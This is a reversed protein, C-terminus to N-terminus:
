VQSRKLPEHASMTDELEEPVNEDDWENHFDSEKRDKESAPKARRPVVSSATPRTSPPALAVSLMDSHFDDHANDEYMDRRTTASSALHAPTRKTRAAATKSLSSSKSASKPQRGQEENWLQQIREPSSVTQAVLFRERTVRHQDGSVEYDTLERGIDPLTMNILREESMPRGDAFLSGGRTKDLTDKIDVSEGFPIADPNSPTQCTMNVEQPLDPMQLRYAFMARTWINAVQLAMAARYKDQEKVLYRIEDHVSIMYRADINFRKTLYEMSVLLMHLYDVGSSQVVWNIRSPMFGEGARSKGEAPLFSKTLAATLGCGLTPTRPRDNQAIEELKNFVFSETGGHWFKRGFANSRDVLGKTAAYLEKALTQAQDMSLTPNFKLLLQMAHKIGAGYIRSYNFVKAADRSIGLISASKSHLDTGASKTGELTMWGIATAGHMGFQADGMVSCIWLEESDVDAGVIAYGPPARIMSKLESGVRNKKANSATLWTREVARRTITGMPIVQPLILGQIDQDKGDDHRPAARKADGNWVVMQNVIRERSSIWYSCSANLALADKAAPYESTLIGDEFASLFPKSLPNGVNKEEGDPHPLKFHAAIATDELLDSDAPDDFDLPRLTNDSDLLAAVDSAPVRYLWGHQKSFAIPYGRWRLRLLLPVARKRVSIDLGGGPIDLDWYWRPWSLSSGDAQATSSTTATVPKTERGIHGGTPQWDLQRLWLDEEPSSSTSSAAALAQAQLHSHLEASDPETVAMQLAKSFESSLLGDAVRKAAGRGFLKLCRGSGVSPLTFFRVKDLKTLLEDPGSFTKRDVPMERTEPKFKSKSDVLFMWGHKQSFAVPHGRWKTKLLIPALQSEAIIAIEQGDSSTVSQLWKPVTEECESDSSTSSVATVTSASSAAASGAIRRARKPSWDLQRLWFDGEWAFRGDDEVQEFKSRAEEALSKLAEQVEQSRTQYTQEARELYQPWHRDVPLFPQSMLMIGAFSAPHPCTTLFKPLVARYVDLTTQVDRACYSMINEFDSRIDGITTNPDILIDRTSKDIAMGCHLRAVEALSNVAGVERWTKKAGVEKAPKLTEDTTGNGNEESERQKKRYQLWAPRQPNTLGSVAVHLSLTDLFRTVPRRLTYESAMRARDYLVNHGIILRPREEPREFLHSSDSESKPSSPSGFPILHNPSDDEGTLWPSCWAYWGDEGVAVAMIPFNGGQFPLTEVDFVLTQSNPDPAGVSEWCGDASYRTWGSMCVWREKDPMATTKREAFERALSLYPEAAHLGLKYFHHSLTPGQLHPLQFEIAPEQAQKSVADPSALGHSRLHKLSIDIATPEPAPPSFKSSAPPFLQARLSNAILPVQAENLPPPAGKSSDYSSEQLVQRVAQAKSTATTYQRARGGATYRVLGIYYPLVGADSSKPNQKDTLDQFATENEHPVAESKGDAVLQRAQEEKLRNSRIFTWRLLIIVIIELGNAVLLSGIGLQYKPAQRELYLYPGCLNGICVGVWIAATVLMRKTTGAINSTILSLSLVFTTQYSGCLWFCFLRGLYADNPALLFGLGGAISPLMFLICVLTRSNKPLRYNLWAGGLIWCCVTAGQPLGLLSTELKDYGLGAIILTSFNSIGANPINAVFGLTLFLWLKIDTVAEKAQPWSFKRHIIGVQNSKLRAAAMLRENRSLWWTTAPDSPLLFVLVIGWISCVAGVILFEYKWSPLSGKIQGIAYGLLGGFGVGLGNAAYWISIRTPQEKEKRYFTATVLMFGQFRLKAPDAAAEVAGSLIRFALLDEFRKSSAQAMLFVGWLFINFGLYTATPCKQMLLNTPVAWVLWGIYFSSSLLAYQSGHLGLGKPPADKIGFIAAYSLTTKDVYYFAYCVALCPLVIWDIKRVLRKEEAEDIAGEFGYKDLAEEYFAKNDDRGFLARWSFQSTTSRNNDEAEANDKLRPLPTHHHELTKIEGGSTKTDEDM